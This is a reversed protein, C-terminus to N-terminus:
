NQKGNGNSSGNAAITITKDTKEKPASMVTLDMQRLMSRVETAKDEPSQTGHQVNPMKIGKLSIAIADILEKGNPLPTIHREMVAQVQHVIYGVLEVDITGQSTARVKAAKDIINSVFTLADKCAQGAKIQLAIADDGTAGGTLGQVCIKDFMGVAEVSILRAMDIEAELSIREDPPAAALEELAARMTPGAHKSYWRRQSVAKNYSPQKGGHRACYDRDKIAVRGCQIPKGEKETLFANAAQCRRPHNPLLASGNPMGKNTVKPDKFWTREIDKRKM